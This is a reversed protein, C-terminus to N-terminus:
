FVKNCQEWPASKVGLKPIQFSTTQSYLVGACAYMSDNHFLLAPLTRAGARSPLQHFVNQGEISEM